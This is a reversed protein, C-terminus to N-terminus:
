NTFIHSNLDIDDFLTYRPNADNLVKFEQTIRQVLDLGGQDLALEHGEENRFCFNYLATCGYSQITADEPCQQMCHLVLPMGSLAVFKRLDDDSAMQAFLQCCNIALEVATPTVVKAIIGTAEGSANILEQDRVSMRYVTSAVLPSYEFKSLARRGSYKAAISTLAAFCRSQVAENRPFNEMASMVCEILSVTTKTVSGHEDELHDLKM